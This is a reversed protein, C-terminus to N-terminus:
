GSNKPIKIIFTTGKGVISSFSISGGHAEVIKKSIALGLGTGSSKTSFSPVFIDSRLDGPIGEGNDEVEIFIDQQRQYLKLTITGDQAPMAEYANKVLNILVRKLENRAGQVDLSDPESEVSITIAKDNHYLRAVSSLLEVLNIKQFDEQLPKSFTSFDSAINNLSQIQEILNKTIKQVKKKLEESNGTDKQLQRELHQVNLKMPTLPNKIEHAVQQAMEKWAAEREARALEKQLNKLRTVMTNYTSALSGFEDNSQVSIQTDLDGSSIKNLGKQIKSLPRTLEKAIATSVLIFLGFVMLYILILYSTTKLLQQDYVPSEIFTPIAVTAIPNNNSDLIARYGILLSQGALNVTTYADKKQQNYLQQYITYPLTSPLLHQKYIQPTTTQTVERNAYFTADTNLTSTLSEISFQNDGTQEATGAKSQVETSLNELKNFLEQRVINKNQQKIAYRSTAILFALFILTALLFSDLIRADFQNSNGLFTIHVGPVLKALLAIMFGATLLFLSFRFFSFLIIQYDFLPTTTKIIEESFRKWLLTRYPSESTSSTHYIVSDRELADLESKNLTQKQPLKSVFGQNASNILQGNKFKQMLYSINWDKNTISTLVARIPKDLQPREQYVSCLIWGNPTNRSGYVPIWGRYFTRYDQQNILQPHQVTPRVNTKSIQQIETVAKLSSINYVNVWSPSNLETSYGAVQRGDNKIFQLDLSYRNWEQKLFQQVTSSFQQQIRASNSLEKITTGDNFEKGLTNLIDKTLKRARADDTKAFQNAKKILQNDTHSLASQQLIPMSIACIIISCVVIKRTLSLNKIWGKKKYYSAAAGLSFSIGLVGMALALLLSLEKLLFFRALFLGLLSSGAIIPIALRSHERCLHLVFWNLFILFLLLALVAMGTILYFILAQWDPVININLLSTQVSLGVSLMQELVAFVVFANIVGTISSIGITAFFSNKSINWSVPNFKHLLTFSAILAFLSTSLNKSLLSATKEVENGSFDNFVHIWYSIIQTENIVLWVIMVLLLQLSLGQWRPLQGAAWFLLVTLIVFCLLAFVSRWFRTNQEWRKKTQQFKNATAYVVGLSDGNLSKLARYSDYQKNVPSFFSFEVPYSTTFNSTDFINFESDEGIALPNDQHIRFDTILHYVSSGTDDQLNFSLESQWYVVNNNQRIRISKKNADSPQSYDKFAFGKWVLPTREKYLTAGWFEPFQNLVQNLSSASHKQLLAKQLASSLAQSRNLFTRQESLFHSSATNLSQEIAKKNTAKSPKIGYRWGQMALLALLLVLLTYGLINRLIYKASPQNM